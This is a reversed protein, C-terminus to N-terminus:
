PLVNPDMPQGSHMASRASAAIDSLTSASYAIGEGRDLQDDGQKIAARRAAIRQEEAPMRHIANHSM